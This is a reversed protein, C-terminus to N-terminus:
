AIALGIYSGGNANIAVPATSSIEFGASYPDIYDTNTVEAATSNLLLYPDNGSVIGRASDWVYWDGTSDTRKIMVFRAGNTFGCDIQKTTGTGTFNFCKSVGPCTAFLYAIYTGTSANVGSNTGVTFATATPATNEWYAPTFRANTLDLRLGYDQPSTADLGSHYTAWTGTVNRRKVIMLEPVVGLNHAVTRTSGTGTYAVVDFFGPARRFTHHVYTEGSANFGSVNGIIGVDNQKDFDIFAAGSEAGTSSTILRPGRGRMRDYAWTGNTTGTRFRHLALDLPFGNSYSQASGTGTWTTAQFVKTADTPTKMPGRRIAIYIYNNNLENFYAGTGATIKFGTNTLKLYVYSTGLDGEANSSNAQLQRQPGNANVNFGRMTDFLWWGDASTTNKILVWQPEWGLNIDPGPQETTANNVTGNGTYSGCSVVNDTGADGFGGADHAFLYAVFNGGSGNVNYNNGLTISSSGVNRVIDLASQKVNNQNLFIYEGVGSGGTAFSNHWCYWNTDNSYRKIIVFGPTSQLNHAVTRGATGDGTYTVVDFFKEAKRFTWSAYNIGSEHLNSVVTTFGNSGVDIRNFASQGATNNTALYADFNLRESDQLYHNNTVSNTSNTRTKIWVLGGEGALDIGNDITQTSGNGTYLYTSFVDEVYLSEDASGGAGMALLRSNPDM